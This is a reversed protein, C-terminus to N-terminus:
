EDRDRWKIRRRVKNSKSKQESKRHIYDGRAQEIEEKTRPTKGEDRWETMMGTTWGGSFNPKQVFRVYTGRRFLNHTLHYMGCQRCKYVGLNVGTQAWSYAAATRAESITAYSRKRDGCGSKYVPASIPETTATDNPM